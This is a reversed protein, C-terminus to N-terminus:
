NTFIYEGHKLGMKWRKKEMGGSFQYVRRIFSIHGGWGVGGWGAGSGGGLEIMAYLSKGEVLIENNEHSFNAIPYIAVIM